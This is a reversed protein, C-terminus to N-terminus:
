CIKVNGAFGRGAITKFRWQGESLLGLSELTTKKLWTYTSGTDVLLSVEKSKSRAKDYIKIPAYAHGM